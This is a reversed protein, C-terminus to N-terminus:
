MKLPFSTDDHNLEPKKKKIFMSEAIRIEIESNGRYLIKFNELNFNTKCIDECHQRISSSMPNQLPRKSRCSVGKHDYYRQFLNRKSSGIYGLQCCPCCFSYVVMSEHALSLKEKHNVFSKLKFNNFFIIKLAIQPYYKSIIKRMELQFLKNTIDDLYPLKVYLDQKKPGFIKQEPQYIHKM